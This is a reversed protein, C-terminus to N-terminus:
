DRRAALTLPPPPEEEEALLERPCDKALDQLTLDGCRDRRAAEIQAILHDVSPITVARPTLHGSRQNRAVDIIECATIQGTDRVCVLEDDDTVTLLGADEFTVVLRAM